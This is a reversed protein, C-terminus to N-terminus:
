AVAAAALREAWLRAQAAESAEVMVRLVPETGSYRVLLRGVGALRAEVAAIAAALRRRLHWSEELSTGGVWRATGTREPPAYPARAM